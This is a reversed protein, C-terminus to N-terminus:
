KLKVIKLNEQLIDFYVSLHSTLLQQTQGTLNKAFTIKIRTQSWALDTNLYFHAMFHLLKRSVEM